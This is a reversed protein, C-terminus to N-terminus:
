IIWHYRSRVPPNTHLIQPRLTTERTYTYRFFHLNLEYFHIRKIEQIPHRHYAHVHRFNDNLQSM